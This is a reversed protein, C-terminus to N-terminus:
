WAVGTGSTTVAGLSHDNEGPTSEVIMGGASEVFSSWRRAFKMTAIETVL